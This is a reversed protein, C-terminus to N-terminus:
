QEKSYNIIKEQTKLLEKAMLFLYQQTDPTLNEFINMFEKEYPSSNFMYGDGTRFWNENVNLASCIMKIHKDSLSRSGNEIMSYATQTLGLQKAFETQNLELAKRIEKLRNVM